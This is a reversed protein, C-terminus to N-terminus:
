IKHWMSNAVNSGLTLGFGSSVGNVVNNGACIIVKDLSSNKPHMAGHPRLSSPFPACVILKQPIETKEPSVHRMYAVWPRVFTPLHTRLVCPEFTLNKGAEM